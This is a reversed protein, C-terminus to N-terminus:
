HLMESYNNILHFFEELAASFGAGDALYAPSVVGALNIYRNRSILQLQKTVTFQCEEMLKKLIKESLQYIVNSEEECLPSWLWVYDDDISINIDLSNSFELTITSHGDFDSILNKDCGSHVLADRVLLAIDIHM